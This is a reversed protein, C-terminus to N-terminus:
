LTWQMGRGRKTVIPRLAGRHRRPVFKHFDYNESFRLDINKPNRSSLWIISFRSVTRTRPSRRGEQSSTASAVTSEVIATLATPAKAFPIRIPVRLTASLLTLLKKTSLAYLAILRTPLIPQCTPGTASEHLHCDCPRLKNRRAGSPHQAAQSRDVQQFKRSTNQRPKKRGGALKM